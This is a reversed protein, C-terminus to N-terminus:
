LQPQMLLLADEPLKRVVFHFYIPSSKIHVDVGFGGAGGGGGGGGAGGGGTNSCPAGVSATDASSCRLFRLFCFAM